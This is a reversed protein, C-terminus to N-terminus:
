AIPIPNVDWEYKGSNYNDLLLDGNLRMIGYWHTVSGMTENSEEIVPMIKERIAADLTGNDTEYRPNQYCGIIAMISNMLACRGNLGLRLGYRRCDTELGYVISNLAVGLNKVNKRIESDEAIKFVLNEEEFNFMDKTAQIRDIIKEDYKRLYVVKEVLDHWKKKDVREWELREQSKLFAELGYKNISSM